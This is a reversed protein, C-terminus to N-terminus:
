GPDRDGDHVDRPRTELGNRSVADRRGPDHTRESVSRRKANFRFDSMPAGTSLARVTAKVFEPGDVMLDVSARRKSSGRRFGVM